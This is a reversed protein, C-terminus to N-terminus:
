GKIKYIKSVSPPNLANAGLGYVTETPFAIVDGKRIMNAAKRIIAYNPKKANVRM